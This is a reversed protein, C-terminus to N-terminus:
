AHVFVDGLSLEWCAMYPSSCVPKRSLPTDALCVSALMPLEALRSLEAEDALRCGAADLAALLPLQPALHALARLANRALGLRQLQRQGALRLRPELVTLLNVAQFYAQCQNKDWSFHLKSLRQAHQM